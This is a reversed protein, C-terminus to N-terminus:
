RTLWQIYILLERAKDNAPEIVGSNEYLNWLGGWGGALEGRAGVGDNGVAWVQWKGNGQYSASFYPRAKGLWDLLQLRRVLITTSTAKSELYNYVMACVEDQTLTAVDAATPVPKTPGVAWCGGLFLALVLIVMITMLYRKM